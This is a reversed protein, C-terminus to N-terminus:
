NAPMNQKIFQVVEANKKVIAQTHTADDVIDLVVKPTSGLNNLNEVLAQTVQYPVATDLKGQVVYLPKDFKKTAPQNDALFKKIVANNEFGNKLGPYDLVSKGPNKVLFEAIKLSFEDMLPSLCLGNEGTTGEAKEAILKSDDEFIEGLNFQPNYARIGVATYAAYALLESYVAISTGVPYLGLKEAQELQAIATPAVQTIIYGLSSAPATAVAGKFDPNSNSLEAIGLSSHGGQSQGISMWSKSLNSGYKEHAAKIAYIASNAASNLNLYPHIGPTGLGEYDPAVIVYGAELLSKALIEFRENLPNNSPACDDGVGTTGHSWVVVPWGNAPKATKPFMVMATAKASKGMVNPMVYTMVKINAAEALSDKTYTTESQYIRTSAYEDRDNDDDNCASLFLATSCTLAILTKKFLKEM